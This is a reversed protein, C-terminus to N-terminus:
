SIFIAWLPLNLATGGIFATSAALISAAIEHPIRERGTTEKM